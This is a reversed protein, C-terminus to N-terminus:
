EMRLELTVLEDGPALDLALAGRAEGKQAEVTVAGSAVETLRFRGQEDSTTSARGVAVAAGAVREGDHDRVVGALIAGRSLELRVPPATLQRPRSGAAVQVALEGGAYGRASAEVTWTGP